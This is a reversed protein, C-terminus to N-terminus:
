GAGGAVAIEEGMYRGVSLARQSRDFDALLHGHSQGQAIGAPEGHRPQEGFVHEGALGEALAAQADLALAELDNKEAGALLQDQAVREDAERAAVELRREHPVHDVLVQGAFAIM